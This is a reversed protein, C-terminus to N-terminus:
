VKRPSRARFQNRTIAVNEALVHRHAAFAFPRLGSRGPGILIKKKRIRVDSVIALYAVVRKKHVSCGERSMDGYFIEHGNARKARHVLEAAM